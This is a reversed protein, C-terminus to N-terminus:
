SPRLTAGTLLTTLTKLNHALTAMLTQFNYKALGYYRCRKLSHNNKLDANIREIVYRQKKALMKKPDYNYKLWRQQYPGQLYTQPLCIATNIQEDKELLGILIADAYGKDATLTKDKLYRVRDSSSM